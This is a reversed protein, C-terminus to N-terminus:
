KIAIIDIGLRPRQYALIRRTFHHDDCPVYESPMHPAPGSARARVREGNKWTRKM